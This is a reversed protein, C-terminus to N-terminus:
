AARLAEVINMRAAAFAPLVGGALGMVLSFALTKLIIVPTMRFGFALESFSQFNMTSVTYTQLLSALALGVAAG